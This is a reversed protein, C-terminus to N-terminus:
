GSRHRVCLTGQVGGSVGVYGRFVELVGGSCGRIYGRDLLFREYQVSFHVFTLGQTCSAISMAVSSAASVSSVTYRRLNAGPQGRM